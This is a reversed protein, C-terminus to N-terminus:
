QNFQAVDNRKKKARPSVGAERHLQRSKSSRESTSRRVDMLETKIAPTSAATAFDMSLCQQKQNSLTHMETKSMSRISSKMTSHPGPSNFPSLPVPSLYQDSWFSQETMAITSPTSTLQKAMKCSDFPTPDTKFTPKKDSEMIGFNEFHRPTDTTMRTGDFDDYMANKNLSSSIRPANRVRPATPPPMVDTDDMRKDGTLKAHREVDAALQQFSKELEDDDDFFTARETERFIPSISVRNSLRMDKYQRTKDGGFIFHLPEAQPLGSSSMACPTKPFPTMVAESFLTKNLSAAENPSLNTASDSPLPTAFTNKLDSMPPTMGHINLHGPSADLSIQFDSVFSRRTPSDFISKRASALCSDAFEDLNDELSAPTKLGPAPSLRQKQTSGQISSANSSWSSYGSYLANEKGGQQSAGGHTPGHIGGHFSTTPYHSAYNYYHMPVHNDFPKKGPRSSRASSPKTGRVTSSACDKGRVASLVGDFDDKFDYRGDETPQIQSEDVGM